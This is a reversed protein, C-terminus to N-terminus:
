KAPHASMALTIGAVNPAYDISKKSAWINEPFYLPLVAYDNFAIEAAKAMLDGRKKPDFEVSATRMAADYAPNSYRMRNFSGTGAAKDYTMLVTTMGPMASPTTTGFRFIFASFAQKGANGVYVNFPQTVVGNVKLGGRAFLQGLAQATDPDGALDSAADITIGFGNPYGAETLLTKAQALDLPDPKLADSHGIIGSPVMQGAPAAAGDFIRDTILQRNIMLSMAKRVRVDKLPNSALPKGDADVVFPSVDRATDLALYIINASPMSHLTIDSIGKLSPLDTPPVSDIVDVGGSRLAAERAAANSMLKFTVNDYAPKDGWYDANAKLVVENGPTWSVFKYPGTGIAAKGDNFDANTATEAAKKSVIYVTGALDMFLPTPTKTTFKITLPDVIEMKDIFSVNGTFPAPSNPIKDARQLSFVVDDATFPSGDQFKVGDRLKVVWTNADSNSWSLALGPHIQLNDDLTVLRDFIHQAITQNNSTRSFEPDISQPETSSGIVLDAALANATGAAFSLLAAAFAARFVKHM